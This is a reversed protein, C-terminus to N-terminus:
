DVLFVLQGLVMLFYINAASGVLATILEVVLPGWGTQTLGSYYLNLWFPFILKASVILAVFLIVAMAIQLFAPKLRNAVGSRNTYETQLVVENRAEISVNIISWVVTYALLGILSWFFVIVVTHSLGNNTLNALAQRYDSGKLASTLQKTGLRTGIQDRYLGIFAALSLALCTLAQTLSPIILRKFDIDM